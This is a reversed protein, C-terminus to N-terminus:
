ASAARLKSVVEDRDIDHVLAIEEVLLCETQALLHREGFSLPKEKETTLLEKYIETLQLLSGTRLKAQYNKSRKNWSLLHGAYGAKKIPKQALTDFVQSVEDFSCLSRIGIAEANSMPVLVTVEKNLFVLEYFKINTGGINKEIIQNIFAVGHGPYVVKENCHFM